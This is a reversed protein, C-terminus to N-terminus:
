NWFRPWPCASFIKVVIFVEFRLKVFVPWEVIRIKCEQRFTACNQILQSQSWKIEEQMQPVCTFAFVFLVALLLIKSVNQPGDVRVVCLESCIQFREKIEDLLKLPIGQFPSELQLPLKFVYLYKVECLVFQQKTEYVNHRRGVWLLRRPQKNASSWVWVCVVTPLVGKSSPGARRLSM